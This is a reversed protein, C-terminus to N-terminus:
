WSGGGGGGFGGGSGGGSFGSGGSAASSPRSAMIASAQAQFNNLGNALALANFHGGGVESYWSSSKDYIGEFQKAWEKEVGLVMAYPLLKEFQAPDKQPANHFKLRDKEAVTLYLKLGLIHERALVGKVTKAPMFFGFVFILLGTVAVSAVGLFGFAPGAFWSAVIAALGVGIYYSRVIRPNKLFYKKALIAAYLDKEIKELDKYFKDKLDSLKIANKGGAFLAELLKREVGSELTAAPKLNTLKYDDKELIKKGAIRTIKIYGKVALNIIEASIDKKHVREDIIVGVEGPILNDPADFQVIITKKGEPDRGKTRWLYFLVIFVLLPLGLILNDLLVFFVTQLFPPQKIDGKPMGIVITMGQGPNFKEDIFVFSKVQDQGSYEYRKSLCNERSGFAGAFCEVQVEESSSIAPLVVTAKSQKIPVEWEHGTVNWYLEDYEPFYNVARKVQYSLQYIKIGSVLKDGDWIKIRKYDKYNSVNFNVPEGAGDVVKFDFIRLNYNGGRAEYKCPIDRYIGHKEEEGFNYTISETIELSADKNIKIRATFDDVQESAIAPFAFFLGFVLFIKLLTKRM